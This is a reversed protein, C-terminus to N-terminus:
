SKAANAAKITKASEPEDGFVGNDKVYLDGNIHVTKVKRGLQKATKRLASVLGDLDKGKEVDDFKLGDGAGFDDESLLETLETQQVSWKSAKGAQVFKPFVDANIRAM